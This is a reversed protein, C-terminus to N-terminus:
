HAHLWLKGNRILSITGPSVHYDAAIKYGKEGNLIRELIVPIDEPKLKAIPHRGHRVRDIQNSSQTGYRLNSLVNNAPNGDNHCVELGLPCPGVFAQMVMQHVRVSKTKRDKTLSVSQHGSKLTGPALIWWPCGMSRTGKGVGPVKGAGWSSRVRGVDSVEYGPWGPYPLWSEGEIEGQYTSHNKSM